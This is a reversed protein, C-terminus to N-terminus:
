AWECACARLHALKVRMRMLTVLATWSAVQCTHACQAQKRVCARMCVLMCVHADAFHAGATQWGIPACLICGSVCLRALTCVLCAHAGAFKARAAQWSGLACSSQASLACPLLRVLLVRMRMLWVLVLLRCAALTCASQVSMCVPVCVRAFCAHTDACCARAAQLPQAARASKGTLRVSM